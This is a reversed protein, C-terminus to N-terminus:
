SGQIFFVHKDRFKQPESFIETNFIQKYSNLDRSKEFFSNKIKQELFSTVIFLSKEKMHAKINNLAFRFKRKSTIHQTVDVMIILDYRKTLKEKTIDCKKFQYNSFRKKLDPFLVDTIDIGTYDTCGMEELLQAYFGIGCGVDLVAANQFKVPSNKCLSLFIQGAESYQRQNEKASLSKNGVGRLDFGYKLHRDRWFNKANYGGQLRFKMESLFNRISSLDM